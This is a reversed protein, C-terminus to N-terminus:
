YYIFHLCDIHYKVGKGEIHYKVGKGEKRKKIGIRAAICYSKIM